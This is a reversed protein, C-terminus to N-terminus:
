LNFLTLYQDRVIKWMYRRRAIKLLETGSPLLDYDRIAESLSHASEFYTGKSEMTARNYACDFALIPKSFHMMEVLSPNTGGASHGHIYASCTRRYLALIKLDYVPNLLKLNEHQSYKLVLEQGYKSATWNGIFVIVQNSKSFVDLILHINNEPEIRCISLAFKANYPFSTISYDPASPVMAHDGGYAITECRQGYNSLVYEAIAENDAVVTTAFRVALAESNKLFLKGLTGYKGRRWECGDLNVVTRIKPGFLRLIPLVVAGSIGLILFNRHGTALGHLISIVDYFISM